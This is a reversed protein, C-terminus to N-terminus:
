ASISWYNKIIGDKWIPPFFVPHGFSNIKEFLGRKKLKMPQRLFLLCFSITNHGKSILSISLSSKTKSSPTNNQTKEIKKKKPKTEMSDLSGSFLIHTLEIRYILFLSLSLTHLTHLHPQSLSASWSFWLKAQLYRQNVIRTVNRGLTQILSSICFLGQRDRHSHKCIHTHTPLYIHISVCVCVCVCVCQICIHEREREREREREWTCMDWKAGGGGWGCVCVCVCMQQPSECLKRNEYRVLVREEVHACARARM